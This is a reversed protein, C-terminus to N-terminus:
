SMSDSNTNALLINQQKTNLKEQLQQVILHKIPYSIITEKYYILCTTM